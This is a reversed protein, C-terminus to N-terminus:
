GQEGGVLGVGSARKLADPRQKLTKPNCTLLTTKVKLGELREERHSSHICLDKEGGLDVGTARSPSVGLGCQSGLEPPSQVGTGGKRQPPM